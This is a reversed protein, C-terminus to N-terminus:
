WRTCPIRRAAQRETRDDEAVAADAQPGHLLDALQGVDPRQDDLAKETGARVVRRASAVSSSLLPWDKAMAPRSWCESAATLERM